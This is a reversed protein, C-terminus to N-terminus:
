EFRSIAVFLTDNDALDQISRNLIDLGYAKACSESGIVAVDSGLKLLACDKAALATDAYEVRQANPYHQDLYQRCQRLAQPHSIIKKIAKSDQGPRALLCQLVPLSFIDILRYHRAALAAISDGVLGGWANNVAMVGYDSKQSRLSEVVGDPTLDYRLEYSGRIHKTVFREAAQESFSGRDGQLSVIVKNRETQRQLLLCEGIITQFIHKVALDSLMVHKKKLLNDIIFREREPDYIGDTKLYNNVKHVRTKAACAARKELLRLLKQDIADIKKRLKKLEKKM